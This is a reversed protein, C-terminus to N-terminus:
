TMLRQVDRVFRRTADHTAAAGDVATGVHPQERWMLSDRILDGYEPLAESAWRAAERKSVHDRTRWLRLGRCMTLVTYAEDRQTSVRDVSDPALIHQRVAEVYDDHSIVPILSATPPGSLAVGVERVQYWDILWRHDVEITHFPEGPSIRAAVSSVTRFMALAKAPLYVVEVRDEWQPMEEIIDRHLGELAALQTAILDSRLVAVMDVDSIGPDFEGTVVSGFLYSGVLDVGLAQKQGSVLRTLLGSVEPYRIEMPGELGLISPLQSTSTVLIENSIVMTGPTM